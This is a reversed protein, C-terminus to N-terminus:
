LIYDTIRLWCIDVTEKPFGNDSSIIHKGPLVAPKSSYNSPCVQSVPRLGFLQFMSKSWWVVSHYREKTLRTATKPLQKKRNWSGTRLRNVRPFSFWGDSWWDGDILVPTQWAHHCAHTDHRQWNDRSTSRKRSSLNPPSPLAAERHIEHKAWCRAHKASNYLREGCKYCQANM